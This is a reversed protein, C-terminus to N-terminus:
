ARIDEHWAQLMDSTEYLKILIPKIRIEKVPLLLKRAAMCLAEAEVLLEAIEKADMNNGEDNIMGVSKYNIVIVIASRMNAITRDAAWHWGNCMKYVCAPMDVRNSWETAIEIAQKKKYM